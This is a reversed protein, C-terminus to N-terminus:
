KITKAPIIKGEQSKYTITVKDGVNLIVVNNDNVASMSYYVAKGDLAIYYVSNGNEVATRIDTIVGTVSEITSETNDTTDAGNNSSDGGSISDPLVANYDINLVLGASSKVKNVYAKLCAEIDPNADDESRVADQVREVSVMAFSKVVSNDKLAMFYTAEGDVNLLVPFTAKWGKDSVISEASKQAGSETTGAIRQFVAEKTRQNIIAFGVISDDSTVSTVGTYLWVDDGSAIYSSGETTSVVGSQGIYANIFGGNYKGYYNYQKVLLDDSYIQDIWQIDKNTRIEELSYEKINNKDAADVLVVGIVDTGGILGVTKDVVECVWWPKGSEDIELSPTGFMYTPFNFRLVRNLKENFYENTSVKINNLGENKLIVTNAEQTYMNVAIYAPIGDRTNNFWKFVDGYKLPFIRYPNGKYNIQTSYASDIVFQSVYESLEGLKKNALNEAVEKDIMPVASFDKLSTITTISKDNEGFNETKVDIIESYAKARFLECSTLYGVGLVLAFVIGIIVPITARKKVYPIYEPKIFAKSLIFTSVVYIAIIVGIFYYFDLSKFNLAPLMFYYAVAGGIITLLIAIIIKLVKKEPPIIVETPKGKGSFDVKIPDM